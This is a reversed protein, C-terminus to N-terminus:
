LALGRIKELTSDIGRDLSALIDENTMDETDAPADSNNQSEILTFSKLSDAAQLHQVEFSLRGDDQNSFTVSAPFNAILSQRTSNQAMPKGIDTM